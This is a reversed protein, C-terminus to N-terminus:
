QRAALLLDCIERVAGQGGALRTVAEAAQKVRAHGDAVTLGLGAARVAPLDPLDDGVYAVRQLSTIGLQAILEELAALKDDRGLIVHQIGLEAMRVSVPRSDRGSIVAVRVGATQVAKIGYGDRVNFVKQERGDADYVLRGDTMVGDVDLVLLEIDAASRLISVSWHTESM